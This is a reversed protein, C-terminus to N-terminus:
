VIGKDLIRVLDVRAVELDVLNFFGVVGYGLFDLLHEHSVSHRLIRRAYACVVHAHLQPDIGVDHEQGTHIELAEEICNDQRDCEGVNYVECQM